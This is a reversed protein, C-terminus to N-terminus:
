VDARSVLISRCVCKEDVGMEGEAVRSRELM